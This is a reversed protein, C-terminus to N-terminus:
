PRFREAKNELEDAKATLHKVLTIKDIAVESTNGATAELWNHSAETSLTNASGALSILSGFVNELDDAIKIETSLRHLVLEEGILKHITDLSRSTSEQQSKIIKGEAYSVPLAEVSLTNLRKQCRVVDADVRKLFDTYETTSMVQARGFSAFLLLAMVVNLILRM